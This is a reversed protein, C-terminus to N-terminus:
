IFTVGPWKDSRGTEHLWLPCALFYRGIYIDFNVFKYVQCKGGKENVAEM